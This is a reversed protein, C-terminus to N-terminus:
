ANQTVPFQMTVVTGHNEGSELNLVGGIEEARQHMNIIGNGSVLGTDSGKGNDHIKMRVAQSKLEISVNLENCGSYKAANSVAEKFVLYLNKRQQTNLMVEELSEGAQFHFAINRASLITQGFNKMRDTVRDFRDNRPNIAWVIDSMERIMERSYEGIKELAGNRENESRTPQKAVESLFSISTLTAGIEDHLDQSLRSRLANVRELVDKVKISMAYTFVMIEIFTGTYFWQM